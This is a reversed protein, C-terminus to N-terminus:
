RFQQQSRRLGFDHNGYNLFSISGDNGYKYHVRKHINTYFRREKKNKKRGEVNEDRLRSREAIKEELSLRQSIRETIDMKIRVEGEKLDLINKIFENTFNFNYLFNGYKNRRRYIELAKRFKEDFEEKNSPWYDNICDIYNFWDDPSKILQPTLVSKCCSCNFSISEIGKNNIGLCFLIDEGTNKVYHVLKLFINNVDTNSSLLSQNAICFHNPLNPLIEFYSQFNYYFPIFKNSIDPNTSYYSNKWILNEIEDTWYIKTKCFNQINKINGIFHELFDDIKSQVCLDDEKIFILDPDFLSNKM